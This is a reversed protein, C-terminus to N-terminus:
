NRFQNKYNLSVFEKDYLDIKDQENPVKGPIRTYSLSVSSLQEDMFSLRDKDKDLNIVFINM